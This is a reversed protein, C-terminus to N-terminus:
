IAEGCEPCVGSINGSLNYGCKLCLGKRRRRYRRLPGRIVTITPYVALLALPAWLPVYHATRYTLRLPNSQTASLESSFGFVYDIKYTECFKTSESTYSVGLRGRIGRIAWTTRGCRGVQRWRAQQGAPQYGAVYAVLTGVALLTSIAIIAKRIM